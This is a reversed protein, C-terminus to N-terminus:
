ERDGEADARLGPGKELRSSLAKFFVRTSPKIGTWIEFSAIGQYVLMPLGGVAKAGRRDARRMLETVSPTYIIDYLIQHPHLDSEELLSDDIRPWMGVPTTHVLIDYVVTRSRFENFNMADTVAQTKQAVEKALESAKALNRGVFAIESPKEFLGLAFGVTRASGGSGLVAVKRGSFKHGQSRFGELFGFPDTTTGILRDDKKVITNVVGMAESEPSIEDLHRVVTSKHPLTVNCGIFPLLRLADIARELEQPLVPLALYVANVGYERFAPNHMAPSLTHEVPSGLLGVLRTKGDIM